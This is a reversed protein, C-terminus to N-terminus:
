NFDTFYLIGCEVLVDLSVSANSLVCALKKTCPDAILLCVKVSIHGM